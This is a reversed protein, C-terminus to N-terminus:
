KADPIRSKEPVIGPYKEISPQAIVRFLQLVTGCPSYPSQALLAAVSEQRAKLSEPTKLATVTVSRLNRSTMPKSGTTPANEPNADWVDWSAAKPALKSAPPQLLL